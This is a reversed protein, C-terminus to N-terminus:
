HGVDLPIVSGCRGSYAAATYNVFLAERVAAEGSWFAAMDKNQAVQASAIARQTLEHAKEIRGFYAETNSEMGCIENEVDAKGEFWAVQEAMVASDGQVFALAYLNTHLIEEDLKRAFAQNTIDLARPYRNLALYFGGLNEYATVNEPYLKLSESTVEEAKQYQGVTAYAVGLNLYPLWDRPYSQIWLQYTQISKELDGTGFDYYSTAIRLKDRESAHERLEFAKTVLVKAREVQGLNRYMTGLRSYAVAFTPDLEIAHEYFPIAEASSKKRGLSYAKLAELSSTTAQELPVDFKQVSPLSEGLESRLKTLANSLADLVKEKSPAQILEQAMSDSTICNLAKLGIVYENGLNAISGAIVAKSGTRQCVERATDSTLRDGSPRNMQTL